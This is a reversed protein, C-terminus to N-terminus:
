QCQNSICKGPETRNKLACTYAVDGKWKRIYEEDLKTFQDIDSKLSTFNTKISYVFTGNPGGCGWHGFDQLACDSADSCDMRLKQSNIKDQLDKIVKFDEAGEKTLSSGPTVNLQKFVEAVKVEPPLVVPPLTKVIPEVPEEDQIETLSKDVALIRKELAEVKSLTECGYKKRAEVGHSCDAKMQILCRYTEGEECYNKLIKQADKIFQNRGQLLIESQDALASISFILILLKLM